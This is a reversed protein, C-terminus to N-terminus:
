VSNANENNQQRKLEDIVYSRFDSVLEKLVMGAGKARECAFVDSENDIPQLAANVFDKQKQAVFSEFVRWSSTKTMEIVDQYERSTM